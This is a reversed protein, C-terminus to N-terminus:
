GTQEPMYGGPHKVMHSRAFAIAERASPWRCSKTFAGDRSSPSPELIWWGDVALCCGCSVIAWADPKTRRRVVQLEPITGSAAHPDYPMLEFASAMGLLQAIAPDCICPQHGCGFGGCNFPESWLKDSM